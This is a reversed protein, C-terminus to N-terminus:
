RAVSQEKRNGAADNAWTNAFMPTRELFDYATGHFTNTGSKTAVSIVGGSSRGYQADFPNTLAKFEAVSDVAPIYAISNLGQYIMDNPAGDLINETADGNMGNFSYNSNGNNTFPFCITDNRSRHLARCLRSWNSRIACALLCNKLQECRSSLAM